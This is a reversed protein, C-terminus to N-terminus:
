EGATAVRRPARAVRLRDAEEAAAAAATSLPRAAEEVLRRAVEVTVTGAVV